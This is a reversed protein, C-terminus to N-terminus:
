RSRSSDTRGPRGRDESVAGPDLTLNGSGTDVEIRIRGDGRRYGVLEKMKVIAEADAYRNRIEGSGQSAFAEFSADPGLRLTVNGSGTDAKVRALRAVSRAQIEVNESGTDAVFEGLDADLVRVNGSGTDGMFKKAQASRVTVNGSGTDCDLIEGRFSEVSVDGSGTDCRLSGQAGSARVDGSGTDAVITGRVAELDVNGSSTDFRIRGSVGRGQLRGVLNRFTAEVEGAPVEVEVDAYVLVGDRSSVTVKRGDYKAGAHFGDLIKGFITVLDGHQDVPYRVTEHRDLPYRVRLTPWGTEERPQDSDVREFRVADLIERTEAHVTAVAVVGKGRGAVVRMTGALNEVVFRSAADPPLEVRIQRTLDAAAAPSMGAPLAAAIACVVFATTVVPPRRM